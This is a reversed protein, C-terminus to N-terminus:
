KMGTCSAYFTTTAPWDSFMGRVGVQRALVDLVTLADGDRDIASKVTRYYFGGGKDLPGSRELTWGILDLDAAKAARAYESPVIEGRDNLALM